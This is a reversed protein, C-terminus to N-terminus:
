WFLTTEAENGYVDFAVFSFTTSSYCDYYYTQLNIHWTGYAAPSMRYEDGGNVYLWVEVEEELYWYTSELDVSLHWTSDGWYYDYDCEAWPVRFWLEEYNNGGSSHTDGPVIICGACLLCWIVLLNRVM